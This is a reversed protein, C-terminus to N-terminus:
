RSTSCRGTKPRSPGSPSPASYTQIGSDESPQQQQPQPGYNMGAPPPGQQDDAPQDYTAGQPGFVPYLLPYGYGGVAIGYGYRRPGRYGRRGSRVGTFTPLGITAGLGQPFPVYGSSPTVIPLAGGIAPYSTPARHQAWAAASFVLAFGVALGSRM